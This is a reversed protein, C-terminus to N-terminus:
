PCMQKALKDCTNYTCRGTSRRPVTRTREEWGCEGACRQKKSRGNVRSERGKGLKGMGNVELEGEMWKVRREGGKRGESVRMRRDEGGGEGTHLVTM